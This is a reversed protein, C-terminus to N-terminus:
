LLGCAKARLVTQHRHHVGFKGMLSRVHHLVGHESLGLIKSMEWTSKGIAILHLCENERTTLPSELIRSTKDVLRRVAEHTFAAILLGVAVLGYSGRAKNTVEESAGFSLVGFDGTGEHIPYTVGEGLGLLHAADCLRSRNPAHGSVASAESWLFPTLRGHAHHVVLDMLHSHADDTEATPRNTLVKIISERSDIAFQGWYSYYTFGFNTATKLLIETLQIDSRASQLDSIIPASLAQDFTDHKLTPHVLGSAMCYERQELTETM